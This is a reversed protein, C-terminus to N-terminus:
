KRFLLQTAGLAVADSPLFDTDSEAARPRCVAVAVLDSHPDPIDHVHGSRGRGVFCALDDPCPVGVGLRHLRQAVDLPRQHAGARCQLVDHPRPDEDGVRAM